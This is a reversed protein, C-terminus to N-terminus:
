GIFNEQKISHSHSKGRYNHNYVPHGQWLQMSINILGANYGNSALGDTMLHHRDVVYLVYIYGNATFEPDLAFGLLGFDRWGGVEDSINLVAQAQKTYNASGQRNCVYVRGDKEWVFLKQGDTTFAAGVPANWTSGTSLDSM